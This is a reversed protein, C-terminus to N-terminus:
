PPPTPPEYNMWLVETRSVAGRQGAAAVKKERRQWGDYLSEYLSSPYGSIMVKGKVAKLMWALQRHCEKSLEHVYGKGGAQRTEMLYPPDVYYFTTESDFKPILIRFDLNEITCDKFRNGARVIAEPAGNWDRNYTSSRRLDCSRFGNSDRVDVSGATGFGFFCRVVFRRAAEVPDDSPEYSAEFEERAFPTFDVARALEACTTRDRMVKWFNVVQKDLDNYVEIKSPEKRLLVGAAGGFVEVYTDHQPIFPVIWTAVRFKAGHYRLPQRTVKWDEATFLAATM